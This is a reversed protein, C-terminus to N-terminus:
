KLLFSFQALLFMIFLPNAFNYKFLFTNISNYGGILPKNNVYNINININKKLKKVM